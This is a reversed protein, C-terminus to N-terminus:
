GVRPRKKAQEHREHRKSLEAKTFRWGLVAEANWNCVRLVSWAYHEEEEFAADAKFKLRVAGAELLKKCRPGETDTTGNAVQVVEGECWIDVSKKKRKTTPDEDKAWYRWRIELQSGVLSEDCPPPHEPQMDGVRDLEGVTELRVRERQARDLLEAAPLERVKGALADAQVTPTGLEKYTFYFFSKASTGALYKVSLVPLM